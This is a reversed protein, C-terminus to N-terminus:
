QDAQGSPHPALCDPHPDLAAAYPSLLRRYCGPQDLYPAEVNQDSYASYHPGLEDVGLLDLLGECVPVPTPGPTM